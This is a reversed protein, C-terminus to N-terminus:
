SNGILKDTIAYIYKAKYMPSCGILLSEVISIVQFSAIRKDSGYYEIVKKVVMSEEPDVTLLEKCYEKIDLFVNKPRKAPPVYVYAIIEEIFAEPLNYYKTELSKKLMYNCYKTTKEQAQKISHKKNGMGINKKVFTRISDKTHETEAYYHYHPNPCEKDGSHEVRMFATFYNELRELQPLAEDKQVRIALNISM